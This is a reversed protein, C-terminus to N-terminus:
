RVISLRSTAPESDASCDEDELLSENASNKAHAIARHFMEWRQKASESTLADLQSETSKQKNLMSLFLTTWDNISVIHADM